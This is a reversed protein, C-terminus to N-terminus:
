RSNALQGLRDQIINEPPGKDRKEGKMANSPLFRPRDAPTGILAVEGCIVAGGRSM